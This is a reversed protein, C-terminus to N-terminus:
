ADLQSKLYNLGGELDNFAGDLQAEFCKELIPKFTKGPTLGQDILHRGLIIPKPASDEVALAAARQALWRGAPFDPSKPPRGGMDAACVRLLRDIRVVKRALRRIAADSAKDKHLMTPRLHALVLPIIAEILEKHETLRDLFSRTPYEGMAEHNPSKIRGDSDTFTTAPKGLDHCLVALGVILDEWEDHIKQTAFADLCHLTHTWVDGEPHWQPDQPCDILTALEPFYRIWGCNRLFLLGLSPKTGKCILKSWEDFLREKPLGEPTIARCLQLTDAAIKFEFRAIFQMARLVRLPDEAFQESTHRLIKQQLDTQGQHPDIIESSLPDWSIANITFDRRAAAAAFSMHPDGTIIFGKHGSGMKCERRPISIDIDHGKIKFVSFSKGVADVQFKEALLKELSEADLGYVEFDIDKSPRALLADRVCGGVILARGRANHITKALEICLGQTAPEFSELINMGM